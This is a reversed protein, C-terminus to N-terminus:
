RKGTVESNFLPEGIEIFGDIWARERERAERESECMELTRCIPVLGLAKLEMVWANKQRNVETCRLHVIFRRIIDDTMGIYRM